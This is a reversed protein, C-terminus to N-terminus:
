AEELRKKILEMNIMYADKNIMHAVATVLYRGRRQKDFEEDSQFDQSPLDVMCNKAFWEASRASGPLQIVLKEQDFKHVSSKRSTQWKDANDLYTSKISMGPHKPMFTINSEASSALIDNDLAHAKKDAANDDGLSFDATEWKKKILDYTALQNKYYGSTMNAMADFHEFHYKNIVTTYDHLDGGIDDKMNTPRIVFTIGSSEEDSSYLQEFTKFSFRSDPQQFVVYDAAGDKLASKLLWSLAYFPTWGPIIVHTNNDSPHDDCGAGIYETLISKAIDTVKMDSYSRRVRKSQNVILAQDAAHISYVLHKSNLMDRDAIRYIVFEWSLEGDATESGVETALEITLKSGPLIPLNMLLNNTDSFNLMVTNVPAFMDQFIHASVVAETVDMENIRVVFKKLDGPKGGGGTIM